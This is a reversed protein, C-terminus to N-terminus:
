STIKNQNSPTKISIYVSILLMLLANVKLLIASTKIETANNRIAYLYIILIASILVNVLIEILDRSFVHEKKPYLIDSTYFLMNVIIYFLTANYVELYVLKYTSLSQEPVISFLLIGYVLASITSRNNLFGRYIKNGINTITKMLYM